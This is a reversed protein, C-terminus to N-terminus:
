LSTRLYNINGKHKKCLCKRPRKKRPLIKEILIFTVRTTYKEHLKMFTGTLGNNNVYM